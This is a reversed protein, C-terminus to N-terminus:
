HQLYIKYSCCPCDPKWKRINTKFFMLSKLNLNLILNKFKSNKLDSLVILWIKPALFSIIETGYRVTKPNRSYLEKSNRLHSRLPSNINFVQSM